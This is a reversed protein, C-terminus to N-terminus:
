VPADTPAVMPLDVTPAGPPPDMHDPWAGIPAQLLCKVSEEETLVRIYYPIGDQLCRAARHHGDILRTGRVVGEPTPFFVHAVIGPITPDVHPIHKENVECRNVSYEVDEPELEIKERGDGVIERALTVDFIFRKRFCWFTEGNKRNCRSCDKKSKSKM